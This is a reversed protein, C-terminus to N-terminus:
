CLHPPGRMLTFTLGVRTSQMVTWKYSFMKGYWIGLQALILTLQWIISIKYTYKCKLAYQLIAQLRPSLNLIKKALPDNGAFKELKEFLKNMKKFISSLGERERIVFYSRFFRSQDEEELLHSATLNITSSSSWLTRSFFRIVEQSQFYKHRITSTNGGCTSSRNLLM